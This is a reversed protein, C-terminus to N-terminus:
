PLPKISSEPALKPGVLICGFHWVQVSNVWLWQILSLSSSGDQAPFWAFNLFPPSGGWQIGERKQSLIADEGDNDCRMQFGAM